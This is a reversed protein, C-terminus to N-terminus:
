SCYKVGILAIKSLSRQCAQTDINQTYSPKPSDRDRRASSRSVAPNYNRTAVLDM